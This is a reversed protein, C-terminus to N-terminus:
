RRDNTGIQISAEGPMTACLWEQMLAVAPRVVTTPRTLIRFPEDTEVPDGLAVLRGTSLLDSVIHLWGLAVGEGDLAAQLVLSYDNSRYADRRGEGSARHVAHLAFWDEWSFRPSYREELHLLPAHRLSAPDDAQLRQALSPAAVPVIREACLTRAELAAVSVSGLPIWLDADDRGVAHDSDSTIVRLDIDPHQRKFEALRPMLWYTAFSTSVSITLSGAAISGAAESMARDIEAFAGRIGEHLRRGVLTLAVGRNSRSFVPTGVAAELRAVAHSVAPQGVGLKRAAGSLTGERAAVDFIRLTRDSLGRDDILIM